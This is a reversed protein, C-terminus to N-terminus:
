DDCCGFMLTLPKAAIQIRLAGNGFRCNIQGDENLDGMIVHSSTNRQSYTVLPGEPLKRLALLAWGTDVFALAIGWIAALTAVRLLVFMLM